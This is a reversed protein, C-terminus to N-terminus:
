CIRFLHKKIEILDENRFIKTLLFLSCCCSILLYWFFMHYVRIGKISLTFSSVSPMSSFMKLGIEIFHGSYACRYLYFTSQHNILQPHSAHHYVALSYRTQKSSSEFSFDSFVETFISSVVGWIAWNNFFRGAICSVRSGDRLQSSGWSLPFAVRELIRAQLIGPVTYDMPDCLTSCLQAIKVESWM